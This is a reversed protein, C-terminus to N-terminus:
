SRVYIIYDQPGGPFAQVISGGITLWSEVSVPDARIPSGFLGCLLLLAKKPSPFIYELQAVQEPAPVSLSSAEQGQQQLDSLSKVTPLQAQVSQLVIYLRQFDLHHLPVAQVSKYNCVQHVIALVSFTAIYLPYTTAAVATSATTSAGAAAAAAITSSLGIGLAAGFLGAAMGQSGAKATVEALNSCSSNSMNGGGGGSTPVNNRTLTRPEPAYGALRLKPLRCHETTVLV